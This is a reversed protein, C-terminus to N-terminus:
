DAEPASKNEHKLRSHKLLDLASERVEEVTIEGLCRVGYPCSPTYGFKTCPSCPVHKNITRHNVGPPAWKEQIGAGFLSVTPTGVGYAVHMLGTDGSVFLDLRSIIYATEMLATMGTFDLVYGDDVFEKVTASDRADGKGGVLVVGTGKRSLEGALAGFREAGWRREPVTAGAFMGVVAKKGNRFDTVADEFRGYVGKELTLFPEDENFEFEEGTVATVLNLFSRAEYDGHSYPVSDTFLESRENTGYGVRVPARTLYAIVASLRHWQETDIVIDYGEKIVRYITKHFKSDYLLLNDIHPCGKFIGANRKEALVDIRSGPFSKRLKSLAPYLLVADGIGGPRIVLIEPNDKEEYARPSVLLKSVASGAGGIIGDLKKIGEIKWNM